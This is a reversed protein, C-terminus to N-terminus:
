QRDRPSASHLQIYLQALEKIMFGLFTYRMNPPATRETVQIMINFVIPTIAKAVNGATTGRDQEHDMWKKVIPTIERLLRAQTAVFPNPSMIWENLEDIFEGDDKSLIQIPDKIM